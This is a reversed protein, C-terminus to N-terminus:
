GLVRSSVRWTSRPRDSCRIRPRCTAQTEVRFVNLADCASTPGREKDVCRRVSRVRRVETATVLVGFLREGDDRHVAGAESTEREEAFGRKMLAVVAKTIRAGVNTLGNPAPLLSGSERQTAASLLMAQVDSLNTM